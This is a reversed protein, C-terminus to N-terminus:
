NFTYNKFFAICRWLISITFLARNKSFINFLSILMLVAISLFFRCPYSVQIRFDLVTPKDLLGLAAIM